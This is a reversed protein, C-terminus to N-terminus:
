DDDIEFNNESDDDITSSSLVVTGSADAARRALLEKRFALAAQRREADRRQREQQELERIHQRRGRADLLRRVEACTVGELALLKAEAEPVGPEYRRTNLVFSARPRVLYPLSIRGAGGYAAVVRHSAAPYYGRSLVALFDGVHVLLCHAHPAWAEVNEWYNGVAHGHASTTEDLALAALSCAGTQRVAAAAAPRLQLGPSAPDLLSLTIMSSDTHEDFLVRETGAGDPPARMSASDDTPPYHCVRLVSQLVDGQATGEHRPPDLLETFALPPLGLHEALIALLRHALSQLTSMLESAAPGLEPAPPVLAGSGM